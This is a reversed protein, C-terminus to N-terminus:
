TSKQSGNLFKQNLELFKQGTWVMNLRCNSTVSMINKLKETM